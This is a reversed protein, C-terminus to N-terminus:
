AQLITEKRRDVIAVVSGESVTVEALKIHTVVPWGGTSLGAEVVAQNGSERLWIYAVSNNFSGLALVSGDYSVPVGDLSARGPLVAVSPALADAELVRFDSMSGDALLKLTNMLWGYYPNLGREPYVFGASVHQQGVLLDLEQERLHKIPVTM